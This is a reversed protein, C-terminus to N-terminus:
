SVLQSVREHSPYIEILDDVPHYEPSEMANYRLTMKRLYLVHNFIAKTIFQWVRGQSFFRHIPGSHANTYHYDVGLGVALTQSALIELEIM